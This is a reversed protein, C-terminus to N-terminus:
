PSIRHSKLLDSVGGRIKIKGPLAKVNQAPLATMMKAYIRVNDRRYPNLKGPLEVLPLLPQFDPNFYNRMSDPGSYVNKSNTREM